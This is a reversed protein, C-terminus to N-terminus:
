LAGRPLQRTFKEVARRIAPETVTERRTLLCARLEDVRLGFTPDRDLALPLYTTVLYHLYGDGYFRVERLVEVATHRLLLSSPVTMNLTLRCDRTWSPFAWEEVLRASAHRDVLMQYRVALEPDDTDALAGMTSSRLTVAARRDM